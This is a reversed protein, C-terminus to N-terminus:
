LQYAIHWVSRIVFVGALLLGMWGGFHQPARRVVHLCAGVALAAIVGFSAAQYTKAEQTNAWSTTPVFLFPLLWVVVGLVLAAWSNTAYTQDSLEEHSESM